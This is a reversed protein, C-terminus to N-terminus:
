NNSDSYNYINLTGDSKIANEWRWLTLGNSLCAEWAQECWTPIGYIGGEAQIQTSTIRADPSKMFVFRSRRYPSLRGIKNLKYGFRDFYDDIIEAYEKTITTNCFTFCYNGTGYQTDPADLGTCYDPKAQADQYRAANQASAMQANNVANFLAIGSGVAAGAIAGYPGAVSGTAAGTGIVGLANTANNITNASNVGNSLATTVVNLRSNTVAMNAVANSGKNQALWARYSDTPVPIDPLPPLALSMGYFFKNHAYEGYQPTITPKSGPLCSASFQFRLTKNDPNKNLEYKYTLSNGANNFVQAFMYPYCFLKNNKPTYGDITTPRDISIVQQYPKEGFGDVFTQNKNLLLTPCMYMALIEETKGDAQVKKIYDNLDVYTEFHNIIVPSGMYNYPHVATDVRAVIFEWGNIKATSADPNFTDNFDAEVFEPTTFVGDTKVNQYQYVGTELGEPVTHKGIIDDSKLVHTREIFCEQFGIADQYCQLADLTYHIETTHSNIFRVYDVFGYHWRAQNAVNKLAIYNIDDLNEFPQPVRVVGDTVRNFQANEWEYKGFHAWLFDRQRDRVPQMTGGGEDSPSRFWITHSGDRPLPVGAFVRVVGDYNAM